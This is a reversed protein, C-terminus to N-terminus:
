ADTEPFLTLTEIALARADNYGAAIQEIAAKCARLAERTRKEREYERNSTERDRRWQEHRAEDRAKVAEPDHQTCFGYKKGDVVRECTPKRSCQYFGWGTRDHVAERCRKVDAPRDFGRHDRWIHTM